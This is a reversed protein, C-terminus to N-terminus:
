IHEEFHWLATEDFARRAAGIAADVDDTTAAPAAGIVEETAPNIIDFTEGGSADRLKGDVLLQPAPAIM